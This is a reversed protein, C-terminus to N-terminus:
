ALEERTGSIIIKRLMFLGILNPIAMLGNCIDAIAFITGLKLLPALAIMAIFLARYFIMRRGGSLYQFCKEGYYNWGLTTTFAFFIIGVNVVHQGMQGLNASFARSVLGIGELPTQFLGTQERTVLVVLGTMTCIIISFFVGTMCVLGQRVASNTKATAAAIAASGLGAENSYIGRGVGMQMVTLLGVGVVGGTTASPCFAGQIIMGFTRPLDRLHIGLVTLSAGIYFICMVPVIWESLLAIRRIGGCTGLFVLLTLLITSTATPIGFSGAAANISNVQAFTGISFLAVGVGCVAFIKAPWRHGTGMEIYHMPGGAVKGDDGVRRFKIALFGEAYKTAMGFFAAVWMWFLAGSGGITIATVVGVINGTGITASLATCLAAFHSIDGQGSDKRFVYEMARPFQVVPLLRLKFTFYVGTGVLLLILPPGWLARSIAGIIMDLTAM